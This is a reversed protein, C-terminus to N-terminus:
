PTLSYSPRGARARRVAGQSGSPLRPHPAPAARSPMLLQPSAPPRAPHWSQNPKGVHRACALAPPLLPPSSMFPGASTSRLPLRLSHRESPAHTTRPGFNPSLLHAATDEPHATSETRSEQAAACSSSLRPRKPGGRRGNAPYCAARSCRQPPDLVRPTGVPQGPARLARAANRPDAYPLGAGYVGRLARCSTPIRRTSRVRAPCPALPLCSAPNGGASSQHPKEAQHALARSKERAGNEAEGRNLQTPKHVLVQWRQIAVRHPQNAGMLQVSVGPKESTVAPKGAIHPRSHSPVRMPLDYPRRCSLGRGTPHSRLPRMCEPRQCPKPLCTSLPAAYVTLHSRNKRRAVKHERLPRACSWGERTPDGLRASERPRRVGPGAGKDPRCDPRWSAPLRAQAKLNAVGGSSVHRQMCAAPACLEPTFVNKWTQELAEAYTCTWLRLMNALGVGLVHCRHLRRGFIVVVHMSACDPACQTM